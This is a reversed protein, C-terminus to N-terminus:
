FEVPGADEIEVATQETAEATEDVSIGSAVFAGQFVCVIELLARTRAAAAGRVKSLLGSHRAYDEPTGGIPAQLLAADGACASV